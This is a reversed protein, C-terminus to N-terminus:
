HSSQSPGSEEFFHPKKGPITYEGRWRYDLVECLQAKHTAPEQRVVFIRLNAYPKAPANM